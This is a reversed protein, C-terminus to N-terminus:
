RFLDRRESRLRRLDPMQGVLDARVYVDDIYSVRAVLKYGMSRVQDRLANNGIPGFCNEVVLVQPRLSERFGKLVEREAGEVDISAFSILDPLCQLDALPMVDVVRSAMQPTPDTNSLETYSLQDAWGDTNAHEYFRVTGVTAGAAINMFQTNQRTKEWESKYQELPDFAIGQYNRYKEFFYTNSNFQPHNAGIDLFFGDVAGNLLYDIVVPQNLQGEQACLVDFVVTGRQFLKFYVRNTLRRGTQWVIKMLDVATAPLHTVLLQKLRAINVPQITETKLLSLALFRTFCKEM